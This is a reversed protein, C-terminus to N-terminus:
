MPRSLEDFVVDLCDPKLVLVLFWIKFQTFKLHIKLGKPKAYAEIPGRLGRAAEPNNDLNSM